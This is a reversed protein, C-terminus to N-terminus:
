HSNKISDKNNYLLLKIEEKIRNKVTTNEKENIFRKFKKLKKKLEELELGEFEEMKDILINSNDEYMDDIIESRDKLDWKKGNWVMAYKTKINPIYVNQNEPKEPNFHIAEILKPVSNFGRNMIKLYDNNTLHSLDPQQKHSLITFNNNFTQNYVVKGKESSIKEITEKLKKMELEQQEIKELLDDKNNIKCYHKKHRYYNNKHNFETDCIPCIFIQKKNSRKKEKKKTISKSVKQSVRQSVRQSVEQSNNNDVLKDDIKCPFKRNIHREYNSKRNFTKSCINCKYITM